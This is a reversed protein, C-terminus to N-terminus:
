FKPPHKILYEEGLGKNPCANILLQLFFAEATHEYWEGPIPHSSRDQFVAPYTDKMSVKDNLLLQLQHTRKKVQVFTDNPRAILADTQINLKALKYKVQSLNGSM